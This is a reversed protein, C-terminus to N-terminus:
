GYVLTKLVRFHHVTKIVYRMPKQCLGILHFPFSQFACSGVLPENPKEAHVVFPLHSKHVCIKTYAALIRLDIVHVSSYSPLFQSHLGSAYCQKLLFSDFCVYINITCHNLLFYLRSEPMIISTARSFFFPPIPIRDSSSRSIDKLSAM